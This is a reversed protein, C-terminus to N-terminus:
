KGMILKNHLKRLKRTKLFSALVTRCKNANDVSLQGELRLSLADWYQAFTRQYGRERHVLSGESFLLVKIRDLSVRPKQSITSKETVVSSVTDDDDISNDQLDAVRSGQAEGAEEMPVTIDDPSSSRQKKHCQSDDTENSRETTGPADVNERPRKRESVSKDLRNSETPAGKPQRVEERPEGDDQHSSFDGNVPQDLPASRPVCIPEKTKGDSGSIQKTEAVPASASAGEQEPGLVLGAPENAEDAKPRVFGSVQRESGMLPGEKRTEVLEALENAEDANPRVSGSAQRKSAGLPSEKRAEMAVDINSIAPAVSESVVPADAATTDIIKAPPTTILGRTVTASGPPDEGTGKIPLENQLEVIPGSTTSLSPQPGETPLVSDQKEYRESNQPSVHQNGVKLSPAVKPPVGSAFKVRVEEEVAGTADISDKSVHEAEVEVIGSAEPTATVEKSESSPLAAGRELSTQDGGKTEFPVRESRQQDVVPPSLTTQSPNEPPALRVHTDEEDVTAKTSSEVIESKPEIADTGLKQRKARAESAASEEVGLTDAPRVRVSPAEQSKEEDIAEATQPSAGNAPVPSKRAQEAKSQAGPPESSHTEVVKTTGQQDEPTEGTEAPVVLAKKGDDETSIEDLKSKEARDTEVKEDATSGTEVKLDTAGKDGRADQATSSSMKTEGGADQTEGGADQKARPLKAANPEVLDEAEVRALNSDLGAKTQADTSKSEKRDSDGKKKAVVVATRASVPREGKDDKESPKAKENEVDKGAKAESGHEGVQKSEKEESEDAKVAGERSEEQPLKSKRAAEESAQTGNESENESKEVGKEAEETKSMEDDGGDQHNLDSSDKKGVDNSKTEGIQHAKRRGRRTKPEEVDTGTQENKENASDVGKGKPGNKSATDDEKLGTKGQGRRTIDADQTKSSTGKEDDNSGGSPDTADKEDDKETDDAKNSDSDGDNRARRRTRRTPSKAKGKSSEPDNGDSGSGSSDESEKAAPKRRTRPKPKTDDDPGSSNAADKEDSKKAGKAKSSGVSAVRTGRRTRKNPKPGDPDEEDDPGEAAESEADKKSDEVKKADEVTKSDEVKKSDADDGDDENFGESPEDESNDDHNSGKSGTDKTEDDEQDESDSQQKSTDDETAADTAQKDRKSRRRSSARAPEVAKKTSRKTPAKKPNSRTSRRTVAPAVAKDAATPAVEDATSAAETGRLSKRRTSVRNPRKRTVM